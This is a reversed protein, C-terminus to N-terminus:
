DPRWDLWARRELMDWTFLVTNFFWVSLHGNGRIAYIVSARGVNVYLEKLLDNTYVYKIM